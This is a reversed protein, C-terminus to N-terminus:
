APYAEPEACMHPRTQEVRVRQRERRRRRGDVIRALEALEHAHIVVRERADINDVAVDGNRITRATPDLWNIDGLSLQRPGRSGIADRAAHRVASPQPFAMFDITVSADRVVRAANASAAHRGATTAPDAMAAVTASIALRFPGSRSCVRISPAFFSPLTTM